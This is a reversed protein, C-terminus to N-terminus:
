WLRAEVAKKVNDGFSGDTIAMKAVGWDHGVLMDRLEVSPFGEWDLASLPLAPPVYARRLLNTPSTHTTHTTHPSLTSILLLLTLISM